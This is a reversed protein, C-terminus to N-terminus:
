ISQVEPSNWLAVMDECCGFLIMSAADVTEEQGITGRRPQITFDTEWDSGSRVFFEEDTNKTTTTKLSLKLPEQIQQLPSLKIKLIQLESSYLSTQPTTPREPRHQNEICEWVRFVSRTPHASVLYLVFSSLLRTYM